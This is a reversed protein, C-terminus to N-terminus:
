RPARAGDTARPALENWAGEFARVQRLTPYAAEWIADAARKRAAPDGAADAQRLAVTQRAIEDASERALRALEEARAAVEAVLAATSEPAPTNPNGASRWGGFRSPQRVDSQDYHITTPEVHPTVSLYCIAPRDDTTYVRHRVHPEVYIAQGPRCTLEGEGEVDFTVEGDMVLFIEGGLDHSHYQGQRDGPSVRAFRARIEPTAVLNRVDERYDWVQVPM